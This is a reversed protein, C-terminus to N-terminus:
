TGGTLLKFRKKSVMSSRSLSDLVYVPLIYGRIRCIQALIKSHMSHLLLYFKSGQKEWILYGSYTNKKRQFNQEFKNGQLEIFHPFQKNEKTSTNTPTAGTAPIHLLIQQFPMISIIQQKILITGNPKDFEINKNRIENAKMNETQKPYTISMYLCFESFLIM